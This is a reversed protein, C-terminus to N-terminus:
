DSVHNISDENVMEQKVSESLGSLILDDEHGDGILDIVSVTASVDYDDM